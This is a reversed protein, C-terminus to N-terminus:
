LCQPITYVCKSEMKSKGVRVGCVKTVVRGIAQVRRSCSPEMKIGESNVWNRGCSHYDGAHGRVGACMM